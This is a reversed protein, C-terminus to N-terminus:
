KPRLEYSFNYFNYSLHLQHHFILSFSLQVGM